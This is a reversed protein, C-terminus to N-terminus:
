GQNTPEMEVKRKWCQFKNNQTSGMAKIVAENDFGPLKQLRELLKAMGQAGGSVVCGGTSGALVWYVDEEFPGGDTTIIGVERLDNWRVTETSDDPLTRTIRTEDFSVRDSKQGPSYGRNFIRVAIPALVFFLVIPTWDPFHPFWKNQAAFELVPVAVVFIVALLCRINDKTQDKM